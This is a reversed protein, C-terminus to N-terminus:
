MGGDRTPRSSHSPSPCASKSSSLPRAVGVVTFQPTEKSKTHKYFRIYQTWPGEGRLCNRCEEQSVEGVIQILASEVNAAQDGIREDLRRGTYNITHRVLPERAPEAASLLRLAATKIGRANQAVKYPLRMIHHAWQGPELNASRSKGVPIRYEQFNPEQPASKM